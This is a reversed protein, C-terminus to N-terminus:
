RIGAACNQNFFLVLSLVDQDPWNPLRAFFADECAVLPNLQRIWDRILAQENLDMSDSPRMRTGIQPVACNIKEFLYSRQVSGATVLVMGDLISSEQSVLNDLSNQALNLGASNTSTGNHCGICNNNWIPQIVSAYDVAPTEAIGSLDDCGSGGSFVGILFDLSTLQGVPLTQQQEQAAYLNTNTDAVLDFFFTVNGLGTPIPMHYYGLPDATFRHDTGTAGGFTRDRGGAIDIFNGSSIRALGIDTTVGNGRGDAIRGAVLTDSLYFNLDITGPTSTFLDGYGIRAPQMGDGAPGGAGVVVADSLLSVTVQADIVGGGPVALINGASGSGGVIPAPTEGDSQLFALETAAALPQGPVSRGNIIQGAFRLTMQRYALVQDEATDVLDRDTTVQLSVTYRGPETYTHQPDQQTSITGDGFDWRWAVISGSDVTSQDTFQVTLPTTGTPPAPNTTFAAAPPAGAIFRIRNIQFFGGESSDGGTNTLYLSGDPGFELDVGIVSDAFMGGADIPIEEIQDLDAGTLRWRFVGFEGPFWNANYLVPGDPAFPGSDAIAIGIQSPPRSTMVRHNSDPPNQFEDRSDADISWAGNSGMRVWSLRDLVEGNESSYLVDENPPNPHFTFRFPNRFGVAWIRSAISDANGDYFPNTTIGLGDAKNVRLIKGVYRDTRQVHPIGGTEGLDADDGLAIYIFEPQNPHFEIDGGKHIFNGRPLGSLLVLESGPVMATGASNATIRTLRQDSNTTYFLYIFNNTAFDPDVVLGLLGSEAQTFVQSRLDAFTTPTQYGGAGDPQLILVAGRKEAVVMAGNPLWDLSIMGNPNFIVEEFVFNNDSMQARVAPATMWATVALVAWVMPRMPGLSPKM